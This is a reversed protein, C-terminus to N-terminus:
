IGGGGRVGGGEESRGIARDKGGKLGLLGIGASRGDTM